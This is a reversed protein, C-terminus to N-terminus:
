IVPKQAPASFLRKRLFDEAQRPERPLLRIASTPILDRRRTVGIARGTGKLAIPLVALLGYKIEYYVQHRSLLAIRDSALLLGAQYAAGTDPM